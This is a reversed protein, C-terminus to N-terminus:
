RPIPLVRSRKKFGHIACLLVKPLMVGTMMYLGQEGDAAGRPGRFMYSELWEASLERLSLSNVSLRRKYTHNQYGFDTTVGVVTVGGVQITVTKGFQSKTYFGIAVNSSESKDVEEPAPPIVGIKSTPNFPETLLAGIFRNSLLDPDHNDRVVSWRRM